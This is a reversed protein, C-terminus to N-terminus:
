DLNLCRQILKNNNKWRAIAELAIKDSRDRVNKTLMSWAEMTVTSPIKYYNSCASQGIYAIQNISNNTLNHEMSHKWNDVVFFMNERTLSESNFMELVLKIKKNKEEGTCNNYFDYNYDEWKYWPHFVRDKEPKVNM